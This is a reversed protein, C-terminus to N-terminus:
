KADRKKDRRKIYERYQPPTMDKYFKIWGPVYDEDINSSASHILLEEGKRLESKMTYLGDRIIADLAKPEIESFESYLEEMVDKYRFVRKM